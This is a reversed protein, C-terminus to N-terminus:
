RYDIMTDRKRNNCGGRSGRRYCHCLPQINSICSTGGKSVPVVHDPVLTRKLSKIQTESLGCGLCKNHYKHKLTDWELATFSGGSKAIRAVRKASQAKVKSLNRQVWKRQTASKKDRNNHQWDRDYDPNDEKWEQLYELNEERHAKRYAAHYEDLHVKHKKVYEINYERRAELDARPM